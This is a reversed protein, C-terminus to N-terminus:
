WDSSGSSSGSDWSSSSDSSSGADWSSTSTDSSSNSDWSSSSDNSNSDGWSSTSSDVNWDGSTYTANNSDTSDNNHSRDSERYDDSYEHNHHHHHESDSLISGMMMGEVFRDDNNNIITTHNVTSNGNPMYPDNYSRNSSNYGTNNSNNNFSSYSNNSTQGKKMNASRFSEDESDMYSDLNNDQAFQKKRKEYDSNIKRRIIFFIIGGIIAIIIITGFISGSSTKHEVKTSYDDKVVQAKGSKVAKTTVKEDLAKGVKIIGADFNNAKFDQNPLSVINDIDSSSLISNAKSGVLLKNKKDGISSVFLIYQDGSINSKAYQKAYDDISKGGLSQVLDFKVTVETNKEIKALNDEVTNLTEQKLVKADDVIYKGSASVGISLLFIFLLNLLFIKGIKM